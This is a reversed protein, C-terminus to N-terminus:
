KQRNKQEAEQLSHNHRARLYPDYLNKYAELLNRFRELSEPGAVDPHSQKVLERFADHVGAASEYRSIGLTLYYNKLQM